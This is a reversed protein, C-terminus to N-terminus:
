VQVVRLKEFDEQRKLEAHQKVTLGSHLPTDDNMLSEEDLVLDAESKEMKKKKVKDSHKQPPQYVGHFDCSAEAMAAKFEEISFEHEQKYHLFLKGSVEAGCEFCIVDQAPKEKAPRKQRQRNELKLKGTNEQPAEMTKAWGVRCKTERPAGREGQQQERPRKRGQTQQAKLQDTVQPLKGSNQLDRLIDTASKPKENAAIPPPPRFIKNRSPDFQVVKIPPKESTKPGRLSMLFDHRSKSVDKEASPAMTKIPEAYWDEFAGEDVKPPPFKVKGFNDVTHRHGGVMSGFTDGPNSGLGSVSAAQGWGPKPPVESKETLIKAQLSPILKLVESNVTYM